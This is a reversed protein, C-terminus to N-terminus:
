LHYKSVTGRKGSRLPYFPRRISIEAPREAPRFWDAWAGNGFTMLATRFDQLGIAEGYGRPVGIPFDFGVLVPGAEHRRKILRELLDAANLVLEPASAVFKDAHRVALAMWRKKSTTSWDCHAILAPKIMDIITRSANCDAKSHPHVIIRK